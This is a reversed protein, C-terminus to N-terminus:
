RICEFSGGCNLWAFGVIIATMFVVYGLVILYTILRKNEAEDREQETMERFRFTVKM